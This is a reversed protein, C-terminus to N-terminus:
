NNNDYSNIEKKLSNDIIRRILESRSIDKNNSLKDLLKIQPKSLYIQVRKM